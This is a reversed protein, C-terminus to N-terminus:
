DIIMDSVIVRTFANPVENNYIGWRFGNSTSAASNSVPGSWKLVGNFYIESNIGNSRIKIAFKKDRLNTGLPQGNPQAGQGRPYAYVKDGDLFRIMIQPHAQTYEFMQGIAIDPLDTSVQYFARFTHWTPGPSFRDGPGMYAEIRAYPTGDGRYNTDGAYMKFTETYNNPTLFRNSNFQTQLETATVDQDNLIWLKHAPTPNQAHLQSGMLSFASALVLSFTKTSSNM